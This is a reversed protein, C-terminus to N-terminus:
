LPEGLYARVVAPDKLVKEPTDEAIKRGFDLVVMRDCLDAVAAIVHEVCAVAAVGFEPLRRIVSRVAEQEDRTMGAMVEDLLVLEPSLALVRAFELQRQYGPTLRSAPDRWMQALGITELVWAAHEAARHSQRGHRSALVVNEWVTLSPLLRPIQFSRAMGRQARLYTPVRSIPEGLYLIEGSTPKVSGTIANFLTTKGAGNAGIICLTEGSRVSLSVHDLATLGGFRVTLDRVELVPGTYERPRPEPPAATLSKPSLVIPRRLLGLRNALGVLGGPFALVTAIVVIGYLALELNPFYVLFEEGVIMLAAAGLFPGWLTGIGGFMVAVVTQLDVTPDFGSTPDIYSRNWAVLGGAIAPLLASLMFAIVKVRTTPVGLAAAAEEDENLSMVDLGFGSRVFFASIGFGALALLGMGVYVAVPTLEAPLSLGVSGGAYHWNNFVVELIRALGLMGLAFLIGRLRLMIPGLVLAVAAGVLGSLPAAFYWPVHARMVMLATAYAGLGFFSVQGFSLYGTFGSILNWGYALVVATLIDTAFQLLYGRSILPVAVFLALLVLAAAAGRLRRARASGDAGGPFPDRIPGGKSAPQTAGEM